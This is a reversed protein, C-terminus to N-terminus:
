NTASLSFVLVREIGALDPISNKLKWGDSQFIEQIEPGQGFGIETVICGSDNLHDPAEKALRRYIELGDQGAFLALGPEFNRVEAELEDNIAVYPPNTVVWDFRQDSFASFLDSKRFEVDAGLQKANFSAVELAQESIDCAIVSAARCELKLTVAICGSGTGIDLVSQGGRLQPRLTEILTETDQRPILVASSVAFERGYFERHGVIYALPEHNLRRDLWRDLEVKMPQPVEFDAHAILWARSQSLGHGALVQAELKASEVGSKHLSDRAFNLWEAVTM